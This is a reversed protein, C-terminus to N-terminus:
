ISSCAMSCTCASSPMIPCPIDEHSSYWVVSFRSTQLNKGEGKLFSVVMTRRHVRQRMRSKYIYKRSQISKEKTQATQAPIRFYSNGTKEERNPSNSPPNRANVQPSSAVGFPPARRCFKTSHGRCRTIPSNWSAGPFNLSWLISLDGGGLQTKVRQTRVYGM